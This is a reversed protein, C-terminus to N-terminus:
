GRDDAIVKPFNIKQIFLDMGKELRIPDAGSIWWQHFSNVWQFNNLIKDTYNKFVFPYKIELNKFVPKLNNKLSNFNNFSLFRNVLDEEEIAKRMISDTILQRVINLFSYLITDPLDKSNVLANLNRQIEFLADPYKIIKDMHDLLNRNDDNIYTGDELPIISDLERIKFLGSVFYNITDYSIQVLPNSDKLYVDNFLRQLFAMHFRDHIGYVGLIHLISEDELNKDYVIKLLKYLMGIYPSFKIGTIGRLGVLGGIAFHKLRKEDAWFREYINNWIEYQEKIKFQYVFILKNYLDPNNDLISKMMENSRYNSKYLNSYTNFDPYKLFIPIDLSYMYHCYEPAYKELFYGYCEIFMTSNRPSVDGVIISYGGSDIYLKEDDYLNEFFLKVSQFVRDVTNFGFNGQQLGNIISYLYNKVYPRIVNKAPSRTIVDSTTHIYRM